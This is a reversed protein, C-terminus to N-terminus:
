KVMLKDLKDSVVRMAAPLDKDQKVMKLTEEFVEDNRRISRLNDTVTKNSLALTYYHQDVAVRLDFMQVDLADTLEQRKRAMRKAAAQVFETLEREAKLTDRLGCTQRWLDGGKAMEGVMTPNWTTQLYLDIKSIQQREFENLLEVHSNKASQIMVGMEGSLMVTEKPLTVCGALPILLFILKKM